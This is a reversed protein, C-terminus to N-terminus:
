RQLQEWTPASPPVFTTWDEGLVSSVLDENQYFAAVGRGLILVQGHGRIKIQNLLVLLGSEGKKVAAFTTPVKSIQQM